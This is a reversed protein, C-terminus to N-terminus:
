ELEIEQLSKGTDKKSLYNQWQSESEALEEVSFEDDFPSYLQKKLEEFLSVKENNNLNQIQNLIETYNSM